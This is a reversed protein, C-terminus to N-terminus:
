RRTSEWVVYKAGSLYKYWAVVISINVMAFFFPIRFLVIGRLGRVLYGALALCYFAMQAALAVKYFRGATALFANSAFAVVLAFPVIWRCLKHSIISFAFLGCRFPNMATKFHFLVELGHVVTRVKRDFEKAAEVVVRYAGIAEPDLIARFGNLKAMIPIYFDSSLNDIWDSCLSKRASFFCGSAGVISDVSGEFARLKMEYKVYAGEGALEGGATEPRDIGSVCAVTSDAYSRVIKSLADRELFTTADTFVLIEGQAIQIGRRQGSHKGRRELLPLLTVGRGAYSRVITETADTSADSVIIIELKDKPYELSLSNEIKQAIQREENCATIVMSIQPFQDKKDVPRPRVVSLVWIAIFYGAYTWWVM